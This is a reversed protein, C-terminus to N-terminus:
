DAATGAICYLEQMLDGAHLDASADGRGNLLLVAVRSGDGAVWVDTKFGAGGGSHGFATGGCGTWEGGRWFGDKMAALQAPGLLEGRMLALLFRATDTATSVIGGEAGVGPHVASVDAPAGGAYASVHPGHIPGRPDYATQELGLPEFFRQRYLSALPQGGAREAVVGLVEFGINSYHFDTGPRSLLPQYAALRIWVWPSFLFAPERQLRSRLARLEAKFTGDTVREIFPTSDAVVDNNDILGSTHALLQAITIRNGYPFVGPLWREVSDSLRLKGDEALQYILTATWIKSVSELRMRAEAPMPRLDRVDAVGAAGSWAGDLTSVYATAGPALREHGAVASDLLAQLPAPELTARHPPLFVDTDYSHVVASVHLGAHAIPAGLPSLTVLTPLSWIADGALPKRVKEGRFDSYGLHYAATFLMSVALALAGVAAKGRWRVLARTGAFAAFVALIPFASLILGDALGYLVGRWLLPGVLDLGAPRSTSDAQLVIVVMPVVFLAGLGVGARWNRTLVRRPSETAFRLWLGTFSFVTGIYIAYYVDRDVVISDTFLFPVLFFLVLGAGLWYWQRHRAVAGVPRALLARRAHSRAAITM